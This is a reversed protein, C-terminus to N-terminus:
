LRAFRIVYSANVCTHNMCFKMRAFVAQTSIDFPQYSRQREVRKSTKKM